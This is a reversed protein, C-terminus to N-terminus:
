ALRTTYEPCVLAGDEAFRYIEVVELLCKTLNPENYGDKLYFRLIEVEEAVTNEGGSYVVSVCGDKVHYQANNHCEADSQAYQDLVLDLRVGALDANQLVIALYRRGTESDTRVTLLITNTSVTPQDGGEEAKGCHVCTGNKYAHGKSSV